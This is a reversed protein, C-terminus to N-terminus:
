SNARLGSKHAARLAWLVSGFQASTSYMYQVNYKNTLATEDRSHATVDMLHGFEGLRTRLEDLQELQVRLEGRHSRDRHSECIRANVARTSKGRIASCEFVSM